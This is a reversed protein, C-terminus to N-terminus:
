RNYHVSRWKARNDLNLEVRRCVEKSRSVLVFVFPTRKM